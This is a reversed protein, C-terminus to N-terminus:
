GAPLPEEQFVDLVAGRLRDTELSIPWAGGRGHARRAGRQRRDRRAAPAGAARPDDAAGDTRTLPAALVLVDAQPLEEDLQDPGVVREFGARRARSPGAGCGSARRASARGDAGRDGPRHGGTGVILVRCDGLERLPSDDAVFFAKSWEGRRQQDIAVDLGRLFHLM